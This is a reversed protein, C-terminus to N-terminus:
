QKQTGRHGEWGWDAERPQESSEPPFGSSRLPHSINNECSICNHLTEAALLSHHAGPLIVRIRDASPGQSHRRSTHKHHCLWREMMRGAGSPSRAICELKSPQCQSLGMHVNAGPVWVLCKRIAGPLCFKFRLGPLSCHPVPWRLCEGFSFIM